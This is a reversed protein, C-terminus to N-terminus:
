LSLLIFRLTSIIALIKVGISQPLKLISEESIVNTVREIRVAVTIKFANLVVFSDKQVAM